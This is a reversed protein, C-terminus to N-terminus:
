ERARRIMGYSGLGMSRMEARLRGKEALVADAEEATAGELRRDLATMQAEFHLTRLQRVSGAFFEEPATLSSVFPDGRLEEVLRVMEPGVADEWRIEEGAAHHDVMVEYIARFRADRFDEVGIQEAARDLWSDDRLMLAVLNREAGMGPPTAERSGRPASRPTAPRPRPPEPAARAGEKELTERPIGTRKAIRDFYMGRTVEDSAARLTPLLADVARRTGAISGFLGKQDLIQLKRELVDVADKLHRRLKEPGGGRVLSDPDEGPPLTAVQVEVGARLLEDASRFTAKLGAPDSDYLLVARRAYRAILAAQEPTLATGLPAVVNELGRASLSLFDTYGEVVLAEGERRIANRAWVLGYLTQGKTYVPSEPSNLYKPVHEAAEGLIRGGFAIPKGGLDLIPFILRGRFADYPERGRTSPKLLGLELLREDPIQHAAAAERLEAWAEPAWGLQFREAAERPIGRRELYDRAIQGGDSEWLQGAFWEAAFANAEHLPALPDAERPREERDPIEVGVRGAILRVADTFGMGLHKMPFAFVDGGEGCVFCKFLGRAPDVSFNPGKGGHLPCPGRFTRGTRRLTTYESVLEVLDARTRVEEVVADPISM